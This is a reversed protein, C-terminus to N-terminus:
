KFDEYTFNQKTTQKLLFITISIKLPYSKKAYKEFDMGLVNKNIGKRKQLIPERELSKM